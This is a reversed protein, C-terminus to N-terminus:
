QAQMCTCVGMCASYMHMCLVYWICTAKNGTEGIKTRAQTSGLDAHAYSCPHGCPGAGGGGGGGGGVKQASM